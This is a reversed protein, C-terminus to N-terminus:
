IVREKTSHRGTCGLSTIDTTRKESASLSKTVHCQNEKIGLLLLFSASGETRLDNLIFEGRILLLVFFGWGTCLLAAMVITCHALFLFGPPLTVPWFLSAVVVRPHCPCTHSATMM